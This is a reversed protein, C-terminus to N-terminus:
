TKNELAGVGCPGQEEAATLSTFMREKQTRKSAQASLTAINKPM